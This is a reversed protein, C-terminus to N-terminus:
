SRDQFIFVHRRILSAKENLALDDKMEQKEQAKTLKSTACVDLSNLKFACFFTSHSQENAM